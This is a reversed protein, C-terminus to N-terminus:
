ALAKRGAVRSISLAEALVREGPLVAGAKLANSRIAAEIASKLRRYLPVDSATAEMERSVLGILNVTTM